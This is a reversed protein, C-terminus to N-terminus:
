VRPGGRAARLTAPGNSRVAVAVPHEPSARLLAFRWGDPRDGLEPACGIRIPLGQDLEFSFQGLPIALGLGRAKIYAEKLTWYAFFRERQAEETLRHLAAVEAASFFRDAIATPETRRGANEVDVGLEESRAVAVAVMGDTHSLNFSLESRDALYPKGHSGLAFRWAEPPVPAYRSLVTRLLARAVLFTHRDRAFYFRARRAHEEESLLAECAATEQVEATACCYLHVEGADLGGPGGPPELADLPCSLELASLDRAV